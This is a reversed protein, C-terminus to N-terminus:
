TAKLFIKTKVVGPLILLKPREITLFCYILTKRDPVHYCMAALWELVDFTGTQKGDKSQYIVKGEDLLYSMREQSFSARIILLALNEKATEYAPYISKGFFVNFGSHRWSFLMSILEKSIKGRRLLM